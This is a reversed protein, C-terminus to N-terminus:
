PRRRALVHWHSLGKVSQLHSPNAYWLTEYESEPWRACVFAHIERGPWEALDLEAQAGTGTSGGLGKQQM